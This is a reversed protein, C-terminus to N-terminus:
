GPLKHGAVTLDGLAFWTSAAKIPASNSALGLCQYSGISGFSSCKGASVHRGPCSVLAAIGGVPALGDM